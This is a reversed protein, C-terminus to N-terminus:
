YYFSIKKKKFKNYIFFLLFFSFLVLSLDNIKRGKQLKEESLLCHPYNSGTYLLDNKAKERFNTKKEFYDEKLAPNGRIFDDMAESGFKNCYFDYVDENIWFSWVSSGSYLLDETLDNNIELNLFRFSLYKPNIKKISSDHNTNESDNQSKFDENNSNKM